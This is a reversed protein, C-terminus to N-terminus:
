AGSGIGKGEKANRAPAVVAPQWLGERRLYAITRKMGSPMDFIRKGTYRPAAQVTDYINRLMRMQMFLSYDQDLVGGADPLHSDGCMMALQLPPPM